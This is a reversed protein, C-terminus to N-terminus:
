LKPPLIIFSRDSVIQRFEKKVTRASVTKLRQDSRYVWIETHAYNDPCPVHQPRFAHRLVQTGPPQEIPLNDPLDAVRLQAIGYNPFDFIVDWPKSYKSWNTSMNDYRVSAGTLRDGIVEDRKCRRYLRHRPLFQDDVGRGAQIM